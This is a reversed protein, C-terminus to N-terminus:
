ELCWGAQLRFELRNMVRVAQKSCNFGPKNGPSAFTFLYSLNTVM